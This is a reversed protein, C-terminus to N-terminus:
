STVFDHFCAEEGTEHKQRCPKRERVGLRRRRFRGDAGVRRGVAALQPLADFLAVRGQGSEGGKNGTFAQPLHRGGRQEDDIQRILFGDLPTEAFQACEPLRRQGRRRLGARRQVAGSSERFQRRIRFGQGIQLRCDVAHAQFEQRQGAGAPIGQDIGLLGQQAVALARGLQRTFLRHRFPM